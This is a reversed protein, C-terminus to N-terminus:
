ISFWVRGSEEAKKINEAKYSSMYYIGTIGNLQIILNLYRKKEFNALSFYEDKEINILSNRHESLIYIVVLLTIHYSSYIDDHMFGLSLYSIITCIIINMEELTHAKLIPTNIKNYLSYVEDLFKNMDPHKKYTYSLHNLIEVLELSNWREMDKRLFKTFDNVEKNQKMLLKCISVKSYNMYDSFSM